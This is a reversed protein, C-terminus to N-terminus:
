LIRINTCVNEIENVYRVSKLINYYFTNCLYSTAHKINIPYSNKTGEYVNQTENPTKPPRKKTKNKNKKNKKATKQQKNYDLIVVKIITFDSTV